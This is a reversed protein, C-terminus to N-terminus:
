TKALSNGWAAYGDKARLSQVMAEKDTPNEAICNVIASSVVVGDAAQSVTRVHEAKSIGFGVVVPMETHQKIQSVNSAISDSM